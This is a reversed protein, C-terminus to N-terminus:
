FKNCVSCRMEGESCVLMCDRHRVTPVHSTKDVTAIASKMSNNTVVGGKAEVLSVFSEDENGVCLKRSTLSTCVSDLSETSTITAPFQSLISPATLLKSYIRVAWHLNNYITLTFKVISPLPPSNEVISYEVYEHSSYAHWNDLISPKSSQLRSFFNGGVPVCATETPLEAARVTTSSTGTKAQQKRECNKVRYQNLRLGHKVKPMASASCM